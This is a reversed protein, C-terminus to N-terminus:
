IHQSKGMNKLNKIHEEESNRRATVPKKARKSPFKIKGFFSLVQNKGMLSLKKDM